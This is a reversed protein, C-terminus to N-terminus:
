APNPGNVPPPLEARVMALLDEARFPKKIFPRSELQALADAYTDRPHGSVLLVKQDPDRALIKALLDLGDRDKRLSIDLLVLDAPRRLMHELAESGNGATLTQYGASKLIRAFLQRQDERDDVILVRNSRTAAPVSRQADGPLAPFHADFSTGKPGSRVDLFAGQKKALRRVVSLGLGSISRRGLVTMSFYPEFIRERQEPNLPGGTDSVTLRAYEGAPITEWGILDEDLTVSATEIEVRGRPASAAMAHRFLNRAMVTIWEGSGRVAPLLDDFRPVIEVSECGALVGQISESEMAARVPANLGIPGRPTDELSLLALHEALEDIRKAARRMELLDARLPSDGALKELLLDPLIVLCGLHNSIEHAVEATFSRPPRLRPAVPLPPLMVNKTMNKM